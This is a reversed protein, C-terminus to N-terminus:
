KNPASNRKTSEAEMELRRQEQAALDPVGSASRMADSLVSRDYPEQTVPENTPIRYQTGYIQPKEINQLYRDLTAAAIWVADRRGKAAAIVAMGHAKLFDGPQDGHQFIFAANYFDTGSRLKGDDLLKQTAERRKADQVRAVNWDIKSVDQRIAQDEDFLRAVDANDPWRDSLIWDTKWSWDTSIQEDKRAPVFLIPEFSPASKYGLTLYGPEALTIVQVDKSENAPAFEVRNDARSTELLKTTKPPGGVDVAVHTQNIYGKQPTTINAILKDGVQTIEIITLTQGEAHVAWRGVFQDTQANAANAFALLVLFILCRTM